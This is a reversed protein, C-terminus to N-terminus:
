GGKCYGWKTKAENTYCWPVGAEMPQETPETPSRYTTCENHKVGRFIFPFSCCAGEGTGGTTIECDLFTFKLTM